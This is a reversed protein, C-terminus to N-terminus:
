GPKEARGRIRCARAPERPLTVLIPVPSADELQSILLDGLARELHNTTRLQGIRVTEAILERLLPTVHLV